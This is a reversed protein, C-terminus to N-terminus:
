ESLLVDILRDVERSLPTDKPPYSYHCDDDDEEDSYYINFIRGMDGDQQELEDDLMFIVM